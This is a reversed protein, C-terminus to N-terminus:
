LEPAAPMPMSGPAPQSPPQPAGQSSPARPLCTHSSCPHTLQLVHLNRPGARAAPCTRAAHLGLVQWRAQTLAAPGALSRRKGLCALFAGGGTCMGGLGHEGGM